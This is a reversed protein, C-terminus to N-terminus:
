SLALSAIHAPKAPGNKKVAVGLSVAILGLAAAYSCMLEKRKSGENGRLLIERTPDYNSSKRACDVIEHIRSLHASDMLSVATTAHAFDNRIKRIMQLAHEIGDDILGLRYALNIKASFIGLPRDSDFLDDKGGPHHRMISKLLKELEVDVRAAGGIVLAREGEQALGLIFTTLEDAFAMADFDAQPVMM